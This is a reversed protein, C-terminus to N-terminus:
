SVIKWEICLICKLEVVMISYFGIFM